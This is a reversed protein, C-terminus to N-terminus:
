EINHELKFMVLDIAEQPLNHAELQKRLKSTLKSPFACYVLETFIDDVSKDFTQASIISSLDYIVDRKQPQKDSVGLRYFVCNDIFKHLESHNFDINGGMFQTTILLSQSFRDDFYDHFEESYLNYSKQVIQIIQNVKKM